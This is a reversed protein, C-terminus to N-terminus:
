LAYVDCAVECVEYMIEDPKRLVDCVDRAHTCRACANEYCIAYIAYLDRLIHTAYRVSRTLDTRYAYMAYMERVISM